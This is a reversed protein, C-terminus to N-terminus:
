ALDLLGQTQQQSIDAGSFDLPHWLIQVEANILSIKSEYASWLAWIGFLLCALTLGFLVRKLIRERWQVREVVQHSRDIFALVSTFEADGDHAASDTYRRAWEPSPKWSEPSAVDVILRGERWEVARALDAGALLAGTGGKEAQTRERWRRYESALLAEKEVLMRLGDWQRILAEHSIDIVADERLPDSYNLFSVDEHAYAEAV